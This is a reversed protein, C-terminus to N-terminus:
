REEPLVYVYEKPNGQYANHFFGNFLESLKAGSPVYSSYNMTEIPSYRSGEDYFVTHSFGNLQIALLRYEPFLEKFKKKFYEKTTQM